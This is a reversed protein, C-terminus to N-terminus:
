LKLRAIFVRHMKFILEYETINNFTNKVYAHSTPPILLQGMSNKQGGGVVM